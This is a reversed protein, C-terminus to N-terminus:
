TSRRDRMKRVQQKFTGIADHLAKKIKDGAEVVVIERGRAECTIHVEHRAHGLHRSPRSSIRVDILDRPGEDALARLSEEVKERESQELWSTNHWHIEVAEEEIEASLGSLEWVASSAIVSQQGSLAGGLPSCFRFLQM